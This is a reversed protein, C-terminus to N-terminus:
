GGLYAERLPEELLEKATGESAVEGTRLLHGRAAVGLALRTNQEVPFVTVGAAARTNSRRASSRMRQSRVRAPTFRAPARQARQPSTPPYSM